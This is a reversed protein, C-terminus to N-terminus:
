WIFCTYTPPSSVSRRVLGCVCIYVCVSDDHVSPAWSCGTCFNIQVCAASLDLSSFQPGRRTWCVMLVYPVDSIWTKERSHAWCLRSVSMTQRKLLGSVLNALYFFLFFLFLVPAAPHGRKNKMLGLVTFADTPPCITLPVLCQSGPSSAKIPSRSVEFGWESHFIDASNGWDFM